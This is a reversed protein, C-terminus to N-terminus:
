LGHSLCPLARLHHVRPQIDKGQRMQSLPAVVSEELHDLITEDHVWTERKYEKSSFYEPNSGVVHGWPTIRSLDVLLSVGM